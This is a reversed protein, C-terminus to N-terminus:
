YLFRDPVVESSDESLDEYKFLEEESLETCEPLSFEKTWEHVSDKINFKEKLYKDNSNSNYCVGTGNIFDLLEGTNMDDKVTTVENVEERIEKRLINRYKSLEDYHLITYLNWAENIIAITNSMKMPLIKIIDSYCRFYPLRLICSLSIQWLCSNHNRGSQDKKLGKLYNNFDMMIDCMVQKDNELINYFRINYIEHVIFIYNQQYAFKKPINDKIEYLESYNFMLGPLRVDRGFLKELRIKFDTEAGVDTIMQKTIFKGIEYKMGEVEYITNEEPFAKDPSDGLYRVCIDYQEEQSIESMNNEFGDYHKVLNTLNYFVDTYMKFVKYNCLHDIHRIIEEDFYTSDIRSGTIAEYKKYWDELKDTYTLWEKIYKKDLFWTKVYQLIKQISIPPRAEGTLIKLQKMIHKSNDVNEKAVLQTTSKSVIETLCKKCVYTGDQITIETSGCSRCIKQTKKVKVAAPFRIKGAAINSNRIYEGFTSYKAIDTNIFDKYAKADDLCAHEVFKKLTKIDKDYKASWIEPHQVRIKEGQSIYNQIKVINSSM